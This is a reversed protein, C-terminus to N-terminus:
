RECGSGMERMMEGDRQMREGYRAIERDGADNGRRLFGIGM